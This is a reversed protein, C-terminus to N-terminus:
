HDTQKMENGNLYTECTPRYDEKGVFNPFENPTLPRNAKRCARAKWSEVNVDWLVIHGGESGSALIKGDNSFALSWVDENSYYTFGRNNRLVSGLPQRTAVDWLIITGDLSASALTRGDPSFIVSSIYNNHGALPDANPKPSSLDWLLIKGQYCGRSPEYKKCSSSALTKGDPSFDLSEPPTEHGILPEGQPKRDAVRWLIITKDQSGSALLRGDPSFDLSTIYDSHGSMSPALLEGTPIRWLRIEARTCNHSRGLDACGASALIGGDPSFDISFVYGSPSSLPSWPLEEQTEANWLRIEAKICRRSWNWSSCGAAAVIRGDPSYAVSDVDGKFGVLPPALPKGTSVDWLIVKNDHSSSALTKSNPSFDLSSVRLSHGRLHARVLYNNSPRKTRTDWLLITGKSDFSALTSNNPSFTLGLIPNQHGKLQVHRRCDNMDWLIITKDAGGSALTQGDTTFALGWVSDKHQYGCKESSLEQGPNETLLNRIRITGTHSGLALHGSNPAFALSWNYSGNLQFLLKRSVVDWYMVKGGNDNGSNAALTKGNPSFGLRFIPGVGEMTLPLGKQRLTSTDWLYGRGIGATALTEGDPSFAVGYASYSHGDKGLLSQNLPQRAVPDWFIVGDEGSAQALFQGDPSFRIDFAPSNAENPFDGIEQLTDVNWLKIKGKTTGSALTNGDPSFTISFMGENHHTLYGILEANIDLATKLAIRSESTDNIQNASVGILLALDVQNKDLHSTAFASLQRSLAIEAEEKAIESQWWASVGGALSALIAALAWARNVRTAHVDEGDLMDKPKGLIPAALNLVASRFRPHRLSLKEATRAWRLDVYLPECTFHGKLNSPLANTRIWDFDGTGVDWQIDGKTLLIFLTDVSRNYLWWEVERQVWESRAVQPSAMLIFFESNNLALELSPWLGPAAPLATEDRFVRM